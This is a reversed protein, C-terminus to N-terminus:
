VEDAWGIQQLEGGSFTGNSAGCIRHCRYLANPAAAEPM